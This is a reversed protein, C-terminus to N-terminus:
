SIKHGTEKQKLKVHKLVTPEFLLSIETNEVVNLLIDKKKNSLKKCFLGTNFQGLGTVLYRSICKGSENYPQSANM